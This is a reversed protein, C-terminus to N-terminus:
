FSLMERNVQGNYKFPFRCEGGGQLNLTHRNLALCGNYIRISVGLHKTAYQPEANPDYKTEDFIRGEPRPKPTFETVNM